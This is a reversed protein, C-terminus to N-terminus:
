PQFMSICIRAARARRRMRSIGTGYRRRVPPAEFTAPLKDPVNRADARIM